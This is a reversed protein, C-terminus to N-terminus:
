SQAAGSIAGSEGGEEPRPGGTWRSLPGSGGAEVARRQSRQRASRSRSGLDRDTVAAGRRSVTEAAEEGTREDWKKQGRRPSTGTLGQPNTRRPETRRGGNRSGAGGGAPRLRRGLGQRDRPSDHRWNRDEQGWRVHKRRVREQAARDRPKKQYNTTKQAIKQASVLPRPTEVGHFDGARARTGASSPRAPATWAMRGGGGEGQRISGM